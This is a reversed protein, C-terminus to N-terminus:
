DNQEVIFRSYRCLENMSKEGIIIYDSKYNNCDCWCLANRYLFFLVDFKESSTSHVKKAIENWKHATDPLPTDKLVFILGITRFGKKRYSPLKKMKKTLIQEICELEDKSTTPPYSCSSDDIEGGYLEAKVKYKEDKTKRYHLWNGDITKISPIAVETVEIGIMNNIDQLDPADSLTLDKYEDFCYRLALWALAETYYKMKESDLPSTYIMGKIEDPINIKM